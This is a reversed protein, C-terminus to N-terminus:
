IMENKDSNKTNEEVLEGVIKRGCKCNKYDLYEVIDCAKDRKCNCNSPNGIFGKDCIGKDILERCERRCKDKNWRQKNNFVSSDLIYKCKCNELQQIYKTQNTWLMLKFVKINLNKVFYAVCLKAYPDNNCNGSCKNVKFSFLDFVSENNNINIIKARTRCEQNNRSVCELLNVSSPNFNFSKMAVVFLKKIFGFM